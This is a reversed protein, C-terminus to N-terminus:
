FNKKFFDVMLSVAKDKPKDKEMTFIHCYMDLGGIIIAMYREKTLNKNCLLSFLQIFIEKFLNQDICQFSSGYNDGYLLWQPEVELWTAIKQLNTNSPISCANIYKRAMPVSVGIGEALKKGNVENFGRRSLFGKERLKSNLRMAFLTKHKQHYDRTNGM